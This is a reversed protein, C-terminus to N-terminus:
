RPLTIKLTKAATRLRGELDRVRREVRFTGKVNREALANLKAFGADIGTLQASVKNLRRKESWSPQRAMLMECERLVATLGTGLASIRRMLDAEKANPPTHRGSKEVLLMEGCGNAPLINGSRDYQFLAVKNREACDVAKPSFGTRTFFLMRRGEAAGILRQVDPRGVPNGYDKVQAVAERAIVDIGNDSGSKTLYADFGLLKMADRALEEAAKWDAVYRNLALQEGTVPQYSM